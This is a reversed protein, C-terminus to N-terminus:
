DHEQPDARARIRRSQPPCRWSETSFLHLSRALFVARIAGSAVPWGGDADAQVLASRPGLKSRFTVLMPHSIDLGFSM